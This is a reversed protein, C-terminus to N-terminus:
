KRNAPQLPELQPLLACLSFGTSSSAYFYFARHARAM